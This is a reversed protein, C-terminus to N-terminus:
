SGPDPDVSGFFSGGWCGSPGGQAGGQGALRKLRKRVTWYYHALDAQLSTSANRIM